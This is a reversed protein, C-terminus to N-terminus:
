AAKSEEKKEKENKQDKIKRLESIKRMNDFMTMIELRRGILIWYNRDDVGMGMTKLITYDRLRYYEEAGKRKHSDFLWQDIAASDIKLYDIKYVKEFMRFLLRLILKKM